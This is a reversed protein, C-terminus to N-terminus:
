LYNYRDSHTTLIWLFLCEGWLVPMYLMITCVYVSVYVCICMYVYTCVYVCVYMCICMRVCMYVYMCMYVGTNGRPKCSQPPARHAARGGVCVSLTIMTNM